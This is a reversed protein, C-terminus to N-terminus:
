KFLPRRGGGLWARGRERPPMRGIEVLRQIRKYKESLRLGIEALLRVAEWGQIRVRSMRKERVVKARIKFEKKLFEALFRAADDGDSFDIRINPELYCNGNIIKKYASISGDGDVVGRVFDRPWRLAVVIYLKASLLYRIAASSVSARFMPRGTFKCERNSPKVEVRERFVKSALEAVIEVHEYVTSELLYGRKGVDAVIEGILEALEPILRLKKGRYREERLALYLPSPAYWEPVEGSLWRRVDEEAPIELEVDYERAKRLIELVEGVPLGELLLVAEFALESPSGPESRVRKIKPRGEEAALRRGREFDEPWALKLCRWLGTSILHRLAAHKGRVFYIGKKCRVNIGQIRAVEAVERRATRFKVEKRNKLNREILYGLLLALEPCAKLPKAAGELARTLPSTAKPKSGKSWKWITSYHPIGARLEALEEIARWIERPGFGAERLILFAEYARLWEESKYVEKERPM